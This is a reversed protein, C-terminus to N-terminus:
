LNYKFINLILAADASDILMDENVDGLIKEINTGSDYKFMNLAIAADASDVLGDQNIDGRKYDEDEVVIVIQATTDGYSATIIAEGENLTIINGFEDVKVVSEDSSTFTIQETAKYIYYEYSLTMEESQNLIYGFKKFEIYDQLAVDVTITDSVNDYKATINATGVGVQILKNDVVKIVESNDSEFIINDYTAGDNFYYEMELDVQADKEYRVMESENVFNISNPKVVKLIVADAADGCIASISTEGCSKITVVGNEVTAIETNSSSWIIDQETKDYSYWTYDLNYEVITNEIKINETNFNFKDEPVVNLTISDSVNNYTATITVEGELLATVKGSVVKAVNTNSSEWLIDEATAGDNFYYDYELDLSRKAKLITAETKIDLENNKLVIVEISDQVDSYSATITVFGETLAVLKGNEVSLIESNSSEWLINEATASDDIFHYNYTLEYEEGKEITLSDQTIELKNEDQWVIVKITDIANDYTATITAEGKSIATVVGLEDVTAISDDSSTWVIDDATAGDVFEYTYNITEQNGVEITTEEKEFVIENKLELNAYIKTNAMIDDTFNYERTYNSDYYWGIFNYNDVVPSDIPSVQMAYSSLAVTEYVEDNVIFEVIPKENYIRLDKQNLVSEAFDAKGELYYYPIDPKLFSSETITPLDGKFIIGKADESDYFASEGIESVNEGLIIYGDISKLNMFAAVGIKEVSDPIVLNGKVSELYDFAWDEINVLSNGLTLSEIGTCYFFARERIDTVSNPITLEKLSSCYGFADQPIETIGNGITLEELSECTYFACTGISTTTDPINITGDLSKCNFFAKEGIKVLKSPLNIPGVLDECGWFAYDTIETVSSPIYVCNTRTDPCKILVEKTTTNNKLKYLVGDYVVYSKSKSDVTITELSSTGCFAGIGVGYDGNGDTGIVSAPIHVSTVKTCNLFAYDCIYYTEDLVTVAGEKGEPVKVLYYYDNSYLIGDESAYMENGEVVEIEELCRCNIFADDFITEVTEPIVIKKTDTCMAFSESYIGVVTKGDLESPIYVTEENGRYEVIFLGNSDIYSYDGSDVTNDSQGSVSNWNDEESIEIGFTCSNYNLALICVLVLLIKKMLEM